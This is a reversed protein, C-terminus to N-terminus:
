KMYCFKRGKWTKRRMLPPFMKDILDCLIQGTLRLSENMNDVYTFESMGDLRARGTTSGEIENM